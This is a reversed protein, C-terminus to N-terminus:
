TGSGQLLGPGGRNWPLETFRGAKGRSAAGDFLRNVRAPGANVKAMPAGQITCRRALSVKLRQALVGCSRM